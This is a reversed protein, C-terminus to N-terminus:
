KKVFIMGFGIKLQAPMKHEIDTKHYSNLFPPPDLKFGFLLPPLVGGTWVGWYYYYYYYYYYFYEKSKFWLGVVYEYLCDFMYQINIQCYKLKIPIKRIKLLKTESSTNNYVTRQSIMQSLYIKILIYSASVNEFSIRM